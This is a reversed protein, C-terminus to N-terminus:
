DMKLYSIRKTNEMKTQRTTYNFESNVTKGKPVNKDGGSILFNHQSISRVLSSLKNYFTDLDTEDSDGNPSYCSIFTTSSHGNFTSVMM